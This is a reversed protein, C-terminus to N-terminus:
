MTGPPFGNPKPRGGAPGRPGEGRPGDGGRQADFQRRMTQTFYLRRLERAFREPPLGELWARDNANIEERFFRELEERTVQPPQFQSFFLGRSWEFVLDGKEKRTPAADLERRSAPSLRAALQQFEEDTPFDLTAGESRARALVFVLSMRRRKEDTTQRLRDRFFGAPTLELIEPEHRAVLEELWAVVLKGDDGAPARGPPRPTRLERERQQQELLQRVQKLREDAPLSSLEARRGAPLTRLWATYRELTTRLSEAQPDNTLAEHFERLRQQQLPSLQEFVERKRRLEAQEEASLRAVMQRREDVSEGRGFLPGAQPAPTPKAREQSDSASDPAPGGASPLAPAPAPGPAPPAQAVLPTARLVPAWIPGVVLACLGLRSLLRRRAPRDRRSAPNAVPLSGRRRM